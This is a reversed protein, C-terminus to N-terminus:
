TKLKFNYSEGKKFPSHIKKESDDIHEKLFKNWLRKYYQVYMGIGKGDKWKTIRECTYLVRGSKKNKIYKIYKKGGHEREWKEKIMFYRPNWSYQHKLNPALIFMRTMFNDLARNNRSLYKEVFDNHYLRRKKFFKNGNDYMITNRFFMYEEHTLCQKLFRLFVQTATM